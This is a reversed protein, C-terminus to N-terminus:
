IPSVGQPGQPPESPSTSATPPPTEVSSRSVRASQVRLALGIGSVCAGLIVALFTRFSVPFGSFPTLIVLIGLLILTSNRSM